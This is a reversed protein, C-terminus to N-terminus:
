INWRSVRHRRSLFKSHLDQSTLWHWFKGQRYACKTAFNFKKKVIRQIQAINFIPPLRFATYALVIWQTM